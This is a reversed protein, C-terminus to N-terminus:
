KLSKLRQKADVEKSVIEKFNHMKDKIKTLYFDIKKKLNTSKCSENTFLKPYNM